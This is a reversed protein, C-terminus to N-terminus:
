LRERIVHFFTVTSFITTPFAASFSLDGAKEARASSGLLSIANKLVPALLKTFCGRRILQDM